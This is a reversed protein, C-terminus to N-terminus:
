SFHMSCAIQAVIQTGSFMGESFRFSINHTGEGRLNNPETEWVLLRTYECSQPGMDRGQNSFKYISCNDKPEEWELDWQNTVESWSLYQLKGSHGMVLRSNPDVVSVTESSITGNPLRRYQKQTTINSLFSFANLSMHNDDFSNTSPKASKWLYTAPRNLISYRTSDQEPQFQFSGPGPDTASKWSTLKMDTGMKMGPLFTDTPNDFSQWLMSGTSTTFYVTGDKNLVKFNGDEAVTVVGTSDLVPKDRNAVWVVTQADEKYWIGVYRRVDLTNELLFFGM